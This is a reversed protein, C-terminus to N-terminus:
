NMISLDVFFFSGFTVELSISLSFSGGNLFALVSSLVVNQLSNLLANSYM